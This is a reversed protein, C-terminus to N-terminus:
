GYAREGITRADDSRFSGVHDMWAVDDLVGDGALADDKARGRALRIALGDDDLAEHLRAAEDRGRVHMGRLLLAEFDQAARDAEAETALLVRGPRSVSHGNRGPSGVLEPVRAAVLGVEHALNPGRQLELLEDLRHEGERGVALRVALAHGVRQTESHDRVRM